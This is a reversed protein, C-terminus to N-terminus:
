DIVFNFLSHGCKFFHLDMEIAASLRSLLGVALFSTLVVRTLPHTLATFNSNLAQGMRERLHCQSSSRGISKM